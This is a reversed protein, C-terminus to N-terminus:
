LVVKWNNKSWLWGLERRGVWNAQLKEIDLSEFRVVSREHDNYRETEVSPFAFLQFAATCGVDNFIADEFQFALEKVDKREQDSTPFAKPQLGNTLKLDALSYLGMNMSKVLLNIPPILRVTRCQFKSDLLKKFSPGARCTDHMYFFALIKRGLLAEIEHTHELLAIFATHDFTNQQVDLQCHSSHRTAREQQCGGRVLIIQDAEFGLQSLSEVLGTANNKVYSNIVILSKTCPSGAVVIDTTLTFYLVYLIIVIVIVTLTLTIIM